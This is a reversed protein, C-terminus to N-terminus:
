VSVTPLREALDTQGDDLGAGTRHLWWNAYIRHRRGVDERADRGDFLDDLYYPDTLDSM